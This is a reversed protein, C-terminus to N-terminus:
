DPLEVKIKVLKGANGLLENKYSLNKYRKIQTTTVGMQKAVQTATAGYSFLTSACAGRLTQASYEPVDAKQCWKKMLRSIYMTNLKNGRTNYFFFTNEKRRNLYDTVIAAADDPVHCWEERETVFVFVGNDYEGFDEPRLEILETSSLGVRFILTLMCFFMHDERSAILLKDIHESPVAKALDEVKAVRLLYPFFFDDFTDPIDYESRHKEIFAAVSHLERFKKAMTGPQIKGDGVKQSLFEYYADVDGLSIDLFDKKILSFFEAVDAKYMATSTESKFGRVFDNWIVKDFQESAYQSIM